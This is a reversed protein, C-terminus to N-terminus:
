AHVLPTHPAAVEALQAGGGGALQADFVKLQLTPAFVQLAVAPAVADPADAASNFEVPLLVPPAVYAQELPVQPAAVATVQAAGCGLLQAAPVNFQLTPAFLQLAVAPAVTEPAVVNSLL